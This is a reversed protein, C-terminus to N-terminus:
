EWVDVVDGDDMDMGGPTAAGALTEGDFVFRLADGGSLWGKARAREEFAAFARSLPADVALGVTLQNGTSMRFVLAVATTGADDSLPTAPAASDGAGAADGGGSRAESGGGDGEESSSSSAM